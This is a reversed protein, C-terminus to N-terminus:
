AAGPAAPDLSCTRLQALRLAERLGASINGGGLTKAQAHEDDNLVVIRRKRRAAAKKNLSGVPRGAGPRTGGHTSPQSM